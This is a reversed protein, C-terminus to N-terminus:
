NSSKSIVNTQVIPAFEYDVKFTEGVAPNVGNSNWEIYLNQNEDTKLAYDVDQLLPKTGGTVYLSIMFVNTLKQNSQLPIYLSSSATNRKLQKYASMRGMLVTKKVYEITKRLGKRRIPVLAIFRLTRVMLEEQQRWQYATDGIQEDFSFQFGPIEGQIIGVAELIANEFDWAIENVQASSTGFIGYEYIIKQQQQTHEVVYGQEVAKVYKAHTPGRATAVNEGGGGPWRRLIRWAITARDVNHKPFEETFHCNYHEIFYTRIIEWFREPIAYPSTNTSTDLPPVSDLAM